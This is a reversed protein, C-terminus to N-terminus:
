LYFDSAALSPGSIGNLQLQFEAAADNDTSAQVVTNVGSTFWGVEGPHNATFAASGVWHFAQDGTRSTNADIGALDIKDRGYGFDTVVDRVTSGVRSDNVTNFDYLDRGAGGTYLDKGDGGMFANANADGKFSDAASSGIAREISVLTDTEAGRKATDTTGSLDVVVAIPGGFLATDSGAEGDLRDNGAGADLLDSGDTPVQDAFFGWPRMPRWSGSPSTVSDPGRFRGRCGALAGRRQPKSRACDSGCRPSITWRGPAPRLGADAQNSRPRRGSWRKSRVRRGIVHILLVLWGIGTWGLLLNMSAIREPRPHRWWAALIAPLAYLLAAVAAKVAAMVVIMPDAPNM